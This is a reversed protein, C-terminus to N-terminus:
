KTRIDTRKKKEINLPSLTVVHLKDFDLDDNLLQGTDPRVGDKVVCSHRRYKGSNNSFIIKSMVMSNEINTDNFIGGDSSSDMPAVSNKM